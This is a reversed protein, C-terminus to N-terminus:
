EGKSARKDKPRDHIKDISDFTKYATSFNHPNANLHSINTLVDKFQDDPLHRFPMGFDNNLYVNEEKSSTYDKTKIKILYELLQDVGIGYGDGPKSHKPNSALKYISAVGECFHFHPQALRDPYVLKYITPIFQQNYLDIEKEPYREECYYNVHKVDLTDYRYLLIADKLGNLGYPLYYEHISFDKYKKSIETIDNLSTIDNTMILNDLNSSIIEADKGEPNNKFTSIRLILAGPNKGVSLLESFYVVDNKKDKVLQFNNFLREKNSEVLIHWIDPNLLITETQLRDTTIPTSFFEKQLRHKDFEIILLEVIYQGDLLLQQCTACFSERIEKFSRLDVTWDDHKIEGQFGATTRKIEIMADKDM